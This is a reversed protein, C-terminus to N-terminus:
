RGADRFGNRNPMEVQPLTKKSMTADDPVIQAQNLIYATVAYM